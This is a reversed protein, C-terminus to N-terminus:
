RKKLGLGMRMAPLLERRQVIHYIIALALYVAMMELRIESFVLQALFLVLLALGEKRNFKLNVLVAVGFLSQAATLLLEHQQFSDLVFPKIASGSIAYVLPITGVLLTWQNVKSSILAKIASNAAGRLAWTAAVIFEPAESALPALWQILLRKDVGLEEGLYILSDAFQHASFFIVAGGWAFLSVTMVRRPVTKMNAIIKVPGVFEPEITEMQAARRTYMAFMLVLIVTDILNLSGKLPITFSYLTAMALYFIEVRQTSDMVIEKRRKAWVYLFLVVPWGLGVLLRNAGTMNAIALPAQSPDHASRWTFVFDVAYEPLVALLALIAVALSESIDIQAAEAAWALCFASGFIAFGFVLSGVIPGVESDTMGLYFGPITAALTTAMMVYLGPSTTYKGPQHSM